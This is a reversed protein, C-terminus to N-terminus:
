TSGEPGSKIKLLDLGVLPEVGDGAVGVVVAYRVVV